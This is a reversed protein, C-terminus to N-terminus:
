NLRAVKAFTIDSAGAYTQGGMKIYGTFYSGGVSGMGGDGAVVLQVKRLITSQFPSGSAENAPRYVTKGMDRLIASNATQLGAALSDTVWSALTAGDENYITSQIGALNTYLKNAPLQATIREVSSM